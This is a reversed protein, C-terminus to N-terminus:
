VPMLKREFFHIAGYIVRYLWWIGLIAFGVFGTGVFGLGSGFLSMGIGAFSLVICVCGWFVGWWFTRLLWRHHNRIAESRTEKIKIYNIIVAILATIGVFSLGHLVYTLLLINREAEGGWDSTPTQLIDM